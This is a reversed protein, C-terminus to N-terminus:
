KCKARSFCNQAFTLLGGSIGCNALSWRNCQCAITPPPGGPLFPPIISSPVSAGGHAVGTEDPTLYRITEKHLSLTRKPEKRM